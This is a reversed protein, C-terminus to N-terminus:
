GKIFCQNLSLNHRISNQWASKDHCYKYYPFNNMIYDYIGRLTILNQPSDLIASAILAPYTHPPRKYPHVGNQGAGNHQVSYKQVGLGVIGRGSKHAILSNQGTSLQYSKTNKNLISQYNLPVNISVSNTDFTDTNKFSHEKKEKNKQKLIDLPLRSQNQLPESTNKEVNKEPIKSNSGNLEKDKECIVLSFPQSQVDEQPPFTSSKHDLSTKRTKPSNDDCTTNDNSYYGESQNVSRRYGNEASLTLCVPNTDGYDPSTPTGISAPSNTSKIHETQFRASQPDRSELALTEQMDIMTEVKILKKLNEPATFSHKVKYRSVFTRECDQKVKDLSPSKGRKVSSIIDIFLKPRNYVVIISILM